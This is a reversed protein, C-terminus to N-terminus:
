SNTGNKRRAYEAILIAEAKGEDKKLKLADTLEPFLRLALLRSAEKDKNLGMAKKWSQPSILEYPIELASLIGLWIGKGEGMNFMSVTGQMPFAHVDELYALVGSGSRLTDRLINAMQGVLYERKTGKAKKRILTPVGFVLKADNAIVGVGGDLGPDIGLYIM